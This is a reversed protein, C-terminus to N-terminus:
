GMEGDTSDTGPAQFLEHEGLHAILSIVPTELLLRTLQKRDGGSADVSNKRCMSALSMCKMDHM